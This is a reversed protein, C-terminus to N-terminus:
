KNSRKFKKYASNTCKRITDSIYYKLILQARTRSVNEDKMMQDVISRKM